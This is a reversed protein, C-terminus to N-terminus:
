HVSNTEYTVNLLDKKLMKIALDKEAIEKELKKIKEILCEIELRDLIGQKLEYYKM